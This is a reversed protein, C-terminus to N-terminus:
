CTAIVSFDSFLPLPLLLLLPCIKRELRQAAICACRSGLLQMHAQGIIHCPVVTAVAIPYVVGAVIQLSHARGIVVPLRNTSWGRRALWQRAPLTGVVATQPGQDRRRASSHGTPRAWPGCALGYPTAELVETDM